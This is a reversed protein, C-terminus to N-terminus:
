KDRRRGAQRGKRKEEEVAPPVTEDVMFLATFRSTSAEMTSVPDEAAAVWFCSDLLLWLAASSPMSTHDPSLHSCSTPDPAM